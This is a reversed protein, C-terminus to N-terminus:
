QLNVIDKEFKLELEELEITKLELEDFLSEIEEQVISIRKSVSSMKEVDGTESANQMDDGLKKEEEEFLIIKDEIKKIEKKLPRVARSKEQIVIARQRKILKKDQNNESVEKKSQEGLEEEWGVKELFEQYTGEFVEIKDRYFVILKQAVADLLMENHTVMLVAGSFNDLASLLADCSDMDLHNTPEDLFLFNTPRALLKGLMVRSREGGSLIGVPKLADDGPFLMAGCISRVKTRDLENNAYFVEDEVTNEDKLDDLFDQVYVGPRANNNFNIKGSDPQIIGSLIKVLTTKGRGNAGIIGIKEGSNISFSLNSIIKKEESYSFDLNKVNLIQKGSFPVENFSFDLQEIKDLKQKSGMKELSKVRSQVMGALRAKARFRTIFLEVEKKRKEENVRTKEYIEEELIIKEYYSQTNGQVKKLKKRHIGAVHTVVSDMFRRDHTILLFEKPWKSLFEKLWRISVIDLYNTPEDLLLFDPEGVLLKALNIRVQYGGSFEKPSREFDSVSFGLGSLIKEAKWISEKENPPLSASVEKLLTEKSFDLIQTLYGTKYNRPTMIEGQDPETGGTILRLLTSKGHGNKGVLGVKEGSNIKFNISDFLVNQGFSKTVGSVSIM